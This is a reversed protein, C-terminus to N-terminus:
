RTAKEPYPRLPKNLHALYDQCAASGSIGVHQAIVNWSLQDQERLTKILDSRARGSQRPRGRTPCGAQRLKKSVQSSSMGLLAGVESMTHGARYLRVAQEVDLRSHVTASVAQHRATEDGRLDEVPM